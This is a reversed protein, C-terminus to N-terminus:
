KSERKKKWNNFAVKLEEKFKGLLAAAEISIPKAENPKMKIEQGHRSKEAFADYFRDYFKETAPDELFSYVIQYNEETKQGGMLINIITHVLTKEAVDNRYEGHVGHTEEFTRNEASDNLKINKNDINILVAATRTVQIAAEIVKRNKLLSRFDIEGDELFKSLKKLEDGEEWYISEESLNGGHDILSPLDTILLSKPISIKLIVSESSTYEGPDLSVYIPRKGYIQDAWSGDLTYGGSKGPILGQSLVSDVNKRATTHYVVIMEEETIFQKFTIM